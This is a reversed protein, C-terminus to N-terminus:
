WGNGVGADKLMMDLDVPEQELPKKGEALRNVIYVPMYSHPMITDKEYNIAFDGELNHARKIRSPILAMMEETKNYYYFVSGTLAYRQGARHYVRVLHIRLMPDEAIVKGKYNLVKYGSVNEKKTMAVLLKSIRNRTNLNGAGYKEWSELSNLDVGEKPADRRELLFVGGADVKLRGQSDASLPDKLILNYFTGDMAKAIVQTNVVKEKAIFNLTKVGSVFAEALSVQSAHVVSMSAIPKPFHVPVAFGKGVHIEVWQGLYEIDRRNFDPQYLQVPKAILNNEDFSAPMAMVDMAMPDSHPTANSDPDNGLEANLQMLENEIQKETVDGAHAVTLNMFCFLVALVVKMM